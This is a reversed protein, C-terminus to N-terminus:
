MKDHKYVLLLYEIPNVLIGNKRIEYHIHNGTSAGTSGVIGLTEL